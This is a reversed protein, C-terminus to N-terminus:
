RFRNAGMGPSSRLFRINDDREELPKIEADIFQDLEHLYDEIEAPIRFDM